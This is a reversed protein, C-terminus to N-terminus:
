RNLQRWFSLVSFTQRYHFAVVRNSLWLHTWKLQGSEIDDDSFLFFKVPPMLEEFFYFKQIHLRGFIAAAWRFRKKNKRYVARTRERGGCVGASDNEAKKPAGLFDARGNFARRINMFQLVQHLSNKEKRRVRGSSFVPQNTVSWRASRNRPDNPQGEEVPIVCVSFVRALFQLTTNQCRDLPSRTLSSVFLYGVADTPVSKGAAAAPRSTALAPRDGSPRVVPGNVTALRAGKLRCSEGTVLRRRKRREKVRESEFYVVVVRACVCVSPRGAQHHSLNGTAVDLAWSSNAGALGILRFRGRGGM